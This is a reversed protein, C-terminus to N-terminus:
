FDSALSKITILQQTKNVSPTKQASSFQTLRRGLSTGNGDLM